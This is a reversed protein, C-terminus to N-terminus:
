SILLEFKLDLIHCNLFVQVPCQGQPIVMTASGRAANKMCNSGSRTNETNIYNKQWMRLCSKTGFELLMQLIHPLHFQWVIGMTSSGRAPLPLAETGWGKANKYANAALKLMNLLLIFIQLVRLCSKTGFELVILLQFGSSPVTGTSNGYQFHGQGRPATSCHGPM